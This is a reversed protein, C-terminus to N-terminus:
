VLLIQLSLIEGILAEISAAGIVWVEIYRSRSVILSLRIATTNEELSQRGLCGGSRRPTIDEVLRLLRVAGTCRPSLLM